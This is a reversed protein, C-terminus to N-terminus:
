AAARLADEFVTLTAAIDADSHALSIYM